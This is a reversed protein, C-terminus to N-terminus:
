EEEQFDEEFREETEDDEIIREKILPKMADYEVVADAIARAIQEQGDRSALIEIDREADIFGTEILISPMLTNKNVFFNATKVGRNYLGTEDSINRQVIEALRAAYGGLSFCYTEVGTGGGTNCHISIYLDCLNDHALDVRAQLSETTSTNAISDTMKERTMVVEYGEDELMERLKDAILWTIEEEHIDLEANEAGTDKGEYNHGADVLITKVDSFDKELFVKEIEPLEEEDELDSDETLDEENGFDDEDDESDETLGSELMNYVVQAVNARVANEKPMQDILELLGYDEAVEMYPEFWPVGKRSVVEDEKGVACVVMKAAQGITVKEAPAFQDVEMGNVLGREYCFSIYAVGWYEPGVDLFPLEKVEYNDKTYGLTRSLLACFETRTIEREPCFTGDDYGAIVGLETLSSIAEFNKHRKPVDPFEAASVGTTFAFLIFVLVSFLKVITQKM